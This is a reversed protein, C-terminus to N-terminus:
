RVVKIDAVHPEKDRGEDFRLYTTENVGRYIWHHHVGDATVVRALRDPEGNTMRVASASMGLRIEAGSTGIEAPRAAVPSPAKKEERLPAGLERLRERAASLGSDIRAAETFLGVAKDRAATDGPFWELYLEALEMRTRADGSAPLGGQAKSKRTTAEEERWLEEEREGLWQYRLMAVARDDKFERAIKKTLDDLQSRTLSKVSEAAQGLSQKIWQTAIAPYDGIERRAEEAAAFADMEGNKVALEIAKRRLTTEFYRALRKRTAGTRNRYTTLPDREYDAITAPDLPPPPEENGEGGVGKWTAAVRDAMAKHAGPNAPTKAAEVRLLEHEITARDVGAPPNAGIRDLLRKLAAPDGAASRREIEVAKQRAASAHRRLEDDDLKEARAQVARAFRYWAEFDDPGIKEAQAEFAERDSPLRRIATVDVYVDLGDVRVTGVIELNTRGSLGEISANGIQFRAACERLRLIRRDDAGVVGGFVGRVVIQKGKLSATVSEPAVPTPDAVTALLLFALM